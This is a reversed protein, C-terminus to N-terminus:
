YKAVLENPREGQSNTKTSFDIHQSSNTDIPFAALNKCARLPYVHRRAKGM